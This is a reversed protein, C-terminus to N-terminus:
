CGAPSPTRRSRSWSRAKIMSQAQTEGGQRARRDHRNGGAGSCRVRGADAADTGHGANGFAGQREPIADDEGSRSPIERHYRAADEGAHVRWDLVSLRFQSIARAREARRAIARRTEPREGVTGPAQWRPGAPAGHWASLFLVRGARVSG